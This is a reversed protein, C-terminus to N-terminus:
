GGTRALSPHSPTSALPGIRHLVEAEHEGAESPFLDADFYPKTEHPAGVTRAFGRFLRNSAENDPTVTAELVKLHPNQAMLWRLMGTAIGRGRAAESVAVQWVFLVEPDDPPTLGLVFGLLEDDGEDEVVVCTDAFRELFLLYTYPSNVELAGSEAALKWAESGDESTSHRYSPDPEPESNAGNPM